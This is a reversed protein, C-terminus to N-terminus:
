EITPNLSQLENEIWDLNTQLKPYNPSKERVELLLQKAQQIYELTQETNTRHNNYFWGLWMYSNALRDKFEIVNPFQQSNEKTLRNNEEFYPFAKEPDGLNNYLEGLRSAAISFGNKYELDDPFSEHLSKELVYYDELYPQADEFRNQKTYTDGIRSLAIAYNNKYSSNEPYDQYLEQKLQKEQEYLKIAEEYQNLLAHCDGINNFSSALNSKYITNQPYQGHLAQTLEQYNKLYDIAKQPQQLFRYLDGIRNYAIALNNTFIENQPHAEHLQSAIKLYILFYNIALENHGVLRKYSGTRDCLLAIDNFVDPNETTWCNQTRNILSEAYRVFLPAEDVNINILLGIGPTYELKNILSTILTNSAELLQAQNKHRTIEQIVPSCKFNSEEENYELLGKDSLDLLIDDLTDEKLLDDLVEFNINESPLISFVSLVATEADSLESLDYMALVISELSENRLGTGKAGYTTSIAGREKIELLNNHLDDVLSALPYRKKLKSNFHNLNQAMLEILLTNGSVADFVEYFLGEEKDHYAKYYSKFLSLSLEKSLHKLKFVDIHKFTSLRSTFIIHLNTCSNLALYQTEIEESDNVQDIVLLVPKALNGLVTIIKKIRSSSDLDAEFNLRLPQALRLLATELNPDAILWILQHYEHAHLHYYKAALATKGIGAKGSIFCVANKNEQTGFLQQYISTLQDDRGLFIDNNFPQELLHKPLSNVPDKIIVELPSGSPNMHNPRPLSSLDSHNNPQSTNLTPSANAASEAQSELNPFLEKLEELHFTLNRILRNLKTSYDESTEFGLNNNKQLRNYRNYLSLFDKDLEEDGSEATLIKTDKFAADIESIEILSRISQYNIPM